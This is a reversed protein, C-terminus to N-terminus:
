CFGVLKSMFAVKSFRPLSLPLLQAGPLVPTRRGMKRRLGRPRHFEQRVMHSEQWPGTGPRMCGKEHHRSICFRKLDKKATAQGIGTGPCTFITCKHLCTPEELEEYQNRTRLVWPWAGVDM